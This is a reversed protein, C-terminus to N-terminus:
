GELHAKLAEKILYNWGEVGSEREFEPIDDPFDETVIDELRLHTGGDAPSIQMSVRSNGPYETYSWSYAIRRGEEVEVIKWRHEFSRAELAVTFKTEFGLEPQFDEIQSFYWQRMEEPDSIAQWVREPPASFTAEVIIPEESTKM